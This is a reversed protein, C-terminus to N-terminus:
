EADRGLHGIKEVAVDIRLVANGKVGLVPLPQRGHRHTVAPESVGQRWLM